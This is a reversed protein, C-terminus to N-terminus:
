LKTLSRTSFIFFFIDNTVMPHTIKDAKIAIKAKNPITSNSPAIRLNNNVKKVNVTDPMKITLQQSANSLFLLSAKTLTDKTVNDEIRTTRQKQVLISLASAYMFVVRTTLTKDTHKLRIEDLM